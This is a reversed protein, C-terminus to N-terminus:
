GTAVQDAPPASISVPQDFASIKATTSIQQDQIKFDETVKVPRSKDDLYLEIPVTKVGSSRLAERGPVSDPLKAVNVVVSYHTTRVGDVTASGKSKVSAAATLFASVSGPSAAALASDLSSALQQVVPNTSDPTVLLYPKGSKNYAAPLKAYTKGDAVIIRVEGTNGPLSETLDLAVLRGNDLKEDGGGTLSQGAATVDLSLHASKIATVASQLKTGLAAADVNDGNSGSSHSGSGSTSSSSCAALALAAPVAFIAALRRSNM